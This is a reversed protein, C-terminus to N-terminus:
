PIQELTKQIVEYSPEVASKTSVWVYRVVGKEDLIVISRKVLPYCATGWCCEAENCPSFQLGYKEFVELKNDSLVPFPLRNKESFRKSSFPTTLDIGIVQAKLDILRFMADRFECVEKTCTETFAGVFFALLVKKGLFESLTRPKM